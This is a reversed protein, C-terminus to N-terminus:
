SKPLFTATFGQWVKDRETELDAPLLRGPHPILPGGGLDRLHDIIFKKRTDVSANTMGALQQWDPGQMAYQGLWASTLAVIEFPQGNFPQPPTSQAVATLFDTFNEANLDQNPLVHIVLANQQVFSGLHVHVPVLVFPTKTFKDNFPKDVLVFNMATIAAVALFLLGLFIQFYPIGEQEEKVRRSRQTKIKKGKTKVPGRIPEIPQVAPIPTVGIPAIKAPVFAPTKVSRQPQLDPVESIQKWDQDAPSWVWHEPTVERRAIKALMDARSLEETQDTGPISLIYTAPANETM